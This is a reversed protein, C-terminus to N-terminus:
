LNKSGKLPIANLKKQLVKYGGANDKARFEEFTAMIEKVDAGEDATTAFDEILKDSDYGAKDLANFTESNMFMYFERSTAVDYPIGKALFKEIRKNEIKRQGSVTSSKSRLFQQLVVIDRKVQYTDGKGYNVSESFRKKGKGALYIQTIDYAGFAYNSETIPSVTSELTRMRRNAMKAMSARLQQLDPLDTSKTRWVDIELLDSTIKM